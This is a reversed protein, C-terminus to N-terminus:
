IDLGLSLRPLLICQVTYLLGDTSQGLYLGAAEEHSESSDM